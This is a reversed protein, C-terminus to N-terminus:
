RRTNVILVGFRGQPGYQFRGEIPSLFSVDQIQDSPLSLIDRFEGQPTHEVVSGDAWPSYIRVGDVILMVPRCGLGAGAARRKAQVCFESVIGARSVPETIRVRNSMQRRLVGMLDPVSTELAEIEARTVANISRGLGLYAELTGRMVEVVVPELEFAESPLQVEVQINQGPGVVVSDELAAYGLLEVQMLYGGVPLEDFQFLGDSDSMRIEDSGELTVMASPLPTRTQFDLVMGTLAGIGETRIALDQALVVEGPPIRVETTDSSFPGLTAHVSLPHDPRPGCVAFEGSDGSWTEVGRRDEGMLAWFEGNWGGTAPNARPIQTTGLRWDSWWVQILADSIPEGSTADTVRGIIAVATDSGIANLCTNRVMLDASPAAIETYAIQGPMAYVLEIEPEIGLTAALPLAPEVQYNGEGLGTFRFLGEHDTTVVPDFGVLRVEVGPMPRGSFQDVIIGEITGRDAELVLSGRGDHVSLVEGGEERFGALTPERIPEGRYVMQVIPMRIWWNRVIWHGDPLRQFDVRGGIREDRISSDLNAYSFDLRKLEGTGSEVWFTGSIDPIRRGPIPEFAVGILGAEMEPATILGMCHTDLFIDSLLVEADPAYYIDGEPHEDVFGETALTAAPRSEFPSFFYGTVSRRGESEIAAAERDLDRVHREIRYRFARERDGWATVELAKRAEEWVRNTLTAEAPRVRCVREPTVEVGELRIAQAPLSFRHIRNTDAHMTLEPSTATERGIMEVRLRYEGPQSILFLYRGSPDTLASRVSTGAEDLLTVFAGKIPERTEQGVVEVLISQAQAWVPFALHVALGLLLSGFQRRVSRKM